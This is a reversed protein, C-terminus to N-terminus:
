AGSVEARVVPPTWGPRRGLLRVLRDMPRTDQVDASGPAFAAGPLLREPGNPVKEAVRLAATVVDTDLEVPRDLSVALDWAHVVNDVLHIGVAAPAPFPAGARLEPLWLSREILDPAGFATLLDLCVDTYALASPAWASVKRAGGRAAAAFGRHQGTMHAVLDYVSWGDCPTPNALEAPRIGAVLTMTAVVARRDRDLLRRFQNILM